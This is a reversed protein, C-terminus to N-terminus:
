ASIDEGMDCTYLWKINDGDNVKYENCGCSPFVGNVSYMWGSMTGCDKEYLQHIGEIYYSNYGPTYTFELQIGTKNCFSCSDTCKGQSCSKKLVDLVTSGKDVDISIRNLIVGNTPIFSLKGSKLNSKNDLVTKCSIEITCRIQQSSKQTTKEIKKNSTVSKSTTVAKSTTLKHEDNIKDTVTTIVKQSETQTLDPLSAENNITTLSVNNDTKTVTMSCGCLLCLVVCLILALIKRM